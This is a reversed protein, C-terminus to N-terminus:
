KTKMNELEMFEMHYIKEPPKFFLKPLCLSNWQMLYTNNYDSVTCNAEKTAGGGTTLGKMLEERAVEAEVATKAQQVVESYCDGAALSDCHCVM